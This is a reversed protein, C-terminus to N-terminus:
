ASAHGHAHSQGPHSQRRYKAHQSQSAEAPHADCADYLHAGPSKEKKSSSFCIQAHSCGLGSGNPHGGRGGAGGLGGRGGAGGLGGGTGAM